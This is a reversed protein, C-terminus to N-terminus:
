PAVMMDSYAAELRKNAAASSAGISDLVGKLRQALTLAANLQSTDVQPAATVNLSSQIQAGAASAASAAADIQSTDVEPRSAPVPLGEVTPSSLPRAGRPGLRGSPGGASRYGSARLWDAHNDSDVRDQAGSTANNYERFAKAGEVAVAGAAVPWAWKAAKKLFGGKGGPLDGISGGAQMVAARQLALAAANLNTGATILGYVARGAL